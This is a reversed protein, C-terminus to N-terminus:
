GNNKACVEDLKVKRRVEIGFRRRSTSRIRVEVAGPSCVRYFEQRGRSREVVGTELHTSPQTVIIITTSLDCLKNQGREVVGRGIIRDLSRTLGDGYRLRLEELREVREGYREGANICAIEGDVEIVPCRRFDADNNSRPVRLAAHKITRDPRVHREARVRSTSQCANATGPM